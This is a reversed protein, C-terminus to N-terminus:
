RKISEFHKFIRLMKCRVLYFIIPINTKQFNNEYMKDLVWNRRSIAANYKSLPNYNNPAKPLAALFAMELLKLENLSKNFYNLSASAVGYSGYGLYIDNLYLELIQDKSLINEIRIALIIEKIKREYSIDSSLLLNKVVQQTITSAGILKRSAFKNILNTISARFIAIPDIGFHSYFKKDEAALFAKVLKKPIRNIPVFIREQVFFKELLLGDSTYVRSSLNPQYKKITEYSPLEPSYKWLIYGTISIFVLISVFILILYFKAWFFLRTM